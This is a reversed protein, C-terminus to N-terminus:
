SLGYVHQATGGFIQALNAAPKDQFHEQPWRLANAYGERASVPPYDSGWMMRAPGFADYAMNLLALNARALPFPQTYPLPRPCIEGLGHVKIYVHAHRALAFVQQRQPYPPAEGDPTNVSGLHELIIPVGTVARVIEAFAPAAFAATDGGVSIPLGLAEAQRWIALPDAGPSRTAPRLRVGAAGQEALWTLTEGADPRDVDVLVVAALRNPYDRVCELLYTNDYQGQMQVLIAQDVGCRDMQFLLSEVPEYWIPAVHCHTDVIPM